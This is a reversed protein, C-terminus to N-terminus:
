PVLVPTPTASNQFGGRGLQGDLGRGWCYILGITAVGCTHAAGASLTEFTLGGIVPVPTTQPPSFDPAFVGTGLQGLLNGGWCYADGLTTVGCTHSGGAAITSFVLGGSVPVPVNSGGAAGNGLQGSTGNGWCYAAGSTTVGCAHQAGASVLAFTLGGAVPVPAAHNSAGSDGLQRKSNDGWCYAIGTTTLGCAFGFSVPQLEADRSTSIMAFTLGGSVAAPMSDDGFGGDGVQGYTGSGWCYGAGATTVGCSFSNGASVTAFSLTGSVPFPALRTGGSVGDGLEGSLEKGWCYAAGTPTTGCSHQFGGSVQAFATGSVPRPTEVPHDTTGNGLRGDFGAGWCLAGGGSLVGCTHLWGASIGVARTVVRVGTVGIVSDELPLIPVTTATITALGPTIGHVSGNTATAISPDRSGWVIARGTLENGAADYATATLPITADTGIFAPNPTVSVTAVGHSVHWTGTFDVSQGNVAIACTVTGTAGDPPDGVVNGRYSCGPLSFQVAAGNLRGNTIDGFGSNDVTGGPGSCFGTQSYTATFSSGNQSITVTGHNACSSGGGTLRQGFAWAGAIAPPPGGPGSTEKCSLLVALLTISVHRKM